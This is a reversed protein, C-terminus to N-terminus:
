KITLGSIQMKIRLGGRPATSVSLKDLSILKRSRDLKKLFADLTSLEGSGDMFIPIGTYGEHAVPELPKLSNINLGASEAMDQITSQLSAFALSPDKKRIIKNELSLVEKELADLEEKADKGGAIFREYKLLTKNEIFLSEKIGERKGDLPAILLAYTGLVAAAAILVKMTISM